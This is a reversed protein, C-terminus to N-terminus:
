RSVVIAYNSPLILKHLMSQATTPPYDSNQNYQKDNYCADYITRVKIKKTKLDFFVPAVPTNQFDQLSARDMCVTNGAIYDLEYRNLDSQPLAILKTFTHTTLDYVYLDKGALYLKNTKPNYHLSNINPPMTDSTILPIRKTPDSVPILSVSTYLLYASYNPDTIKQTPDSSVTTAVLFHHAVSDAILQEGPLCSAFTGIQSGLTQSKTDFFTYTQSACVGQGNAVIYANTEKQHFSGGGDITLVNTVHMPKTKQLAVRYLVTKYEVNNNYYGSTFFYLTNHMIASLIPVQPADESNKASGDFLLMTKHTVTNFVYLRPNKPSANVVFIDEGWQKVYTDYYVTADKETFSYVPVCRNSEIAVLTTITESKQAFQRLYSCKATVATQFAFSSNFYLLLFLMLLVFSFFCLFSVIIWQFFYVKKKTKKATSKKLKKKENKM